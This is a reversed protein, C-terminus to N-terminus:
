FSTIQCGYFSVKWNSPLTPITMTLNAWGDKAAAATAILVHNDGSPVVTGSAAAVNDGLTYSYTVGPQTMACDIVYHKKAVVKFSIQVMSEQPDDLYIVGDIGYDLERHISIEGVHHLTIGAKGPVSLKGPTISVADGLTATLGMTKTLHGALEQKSYFRPVSTTTQLPKLGALPKVQQVPQASGAMILVGCAAGFTTFAVLIARASMPLITLHKM